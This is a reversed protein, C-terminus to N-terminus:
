NYGTHLVLYVFIGLTLCSLLLYFICLFFFRSLSPIYYLLILYDHEFSAYSLDILYILDFLFNFSTLAVSARFFSFRVGHKCKSIDHVLLLPRENWTCRENRNPEDILKTPTAYTDNMKCMRKKPPCSMPSSPLYFLLPVSVSITHFSPLFSPLFNTRKSERNQTTPQNVLCFPLSSLPKVHHPTTHYPRLSIQFPASHYSQHPFFVPLYLSHIDCSLRVLSTSKKSLNSPTNELNKKKNM